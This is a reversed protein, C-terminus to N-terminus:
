ASVRRAAAAHVAARFDYGLAEDACDPWRGSEIWYDGLGLKDCLLPFRRDRRMPENISGFVASGIIARNPAGGDVRFLHAFSSQEILDFMDDALGLTHLVILPGVDVMGGEAMAARNRALLTACVDPRPDRLADITEIMVRRKPDAACPAYLPEALDWDGRIAAILLPSTVAWQFDPWRARMHAFGEYAEALHGIDTLAVHYNNAIMRDLPDLEHARALLRHSDRTRGTCGALEACHALTQADRPAAALARDLLDQRASYHALPQLQSMAVHVLGANADLALAREAADLVAARKVAFEGQDPSWRLELARAAALGAWAAAYDPARAVARELLPVVQPRPRGIGFGDRARLFLDYAIPDARYGPAAPTLAVSLAEAVSAAVRDQLDFMDAVQGDFRDSWIMTRGGCEILSVNIRVRDGIRRVSGDLVHSVGVRGAVFEAAKENGRFQFATARGLVTLGPNRAIGQLIEESVGDSFWNMDADGSLNDFALVAIRPRQDREAAVTARSRPGGDPEELLTTLRQSPRGLGDRDLADAHRRLRLQALAPVDMALDAKLGAEVTVEDLPDRASWADALTAVAPWDNHGATRALEAHVTAALRGDVAARIGALWDGFEGGLEPGAALADDGLGAVAGALDLGAAAEVMDLDVILGSAPDLWLEDRSTGLWAAAGGTMSRLELTCQRLSARAQAPGRDPWLLACIRDRTARRGRSLALTALVGLARRGLLVPRGAPDCLTITGFLTLRYANTMPSDTDGGGPANDNHALPEACALQYLPFAVM